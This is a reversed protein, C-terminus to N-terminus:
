EHVSKRNGKMDFLQDSTKTLQTQSLIASFMEILVMKRKNKKKIQMKGEGVPVEFEM